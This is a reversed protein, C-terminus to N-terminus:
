RPKRAVDDDEGGSVVEEEAIAMTTAHSAMSATPWTM